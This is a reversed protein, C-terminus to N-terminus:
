APDTCTDCHKGYYWDVIRGVLEPIETIETFLFIPIDLSVAHAIEIKMGSSTVGKYCFSILIDRRALIIKDIELIEWEPTSKRLYTETVYEDHVAPIYLDLAPCALLLMRGVLSAVDNNLSMDEATAAAGKLGRIPHSFYGSIVIEKTKM